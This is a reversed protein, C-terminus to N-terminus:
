TARVNIPVPTDPTRTPIPGPAAVEYTVCNGVLVPVKMMNCFEKIDISKSTSSKHKTSIVTSQMVFIDVGADRAIPGLELADQPVSSVATIAGAAKIEKIRKIILENKIPELYLKQMLPVYEEKSVSAIKKLVEDANEYRPWVGQLNLVGLGGLKSMLIATKPSVVGDMASALIPIALKKGGIEVTVDADDPNCTVISPVLSIEDFGYARRTKKSKGIATEM